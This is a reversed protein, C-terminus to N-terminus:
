ALMSICKPIVVIALFNTALLKRRCATHSAIRPACCAVQLACRHSPRKPPRDRPQRHYNRGPDDQLLRDRCMTQAPAAEVVAATLRRRASISAARIAVGAGALMHGLLRVPAVAGVISVGLRHDMSRVFQARPIAVASNTSSNTDAASTPPRPRSNKEAGLDQLYPLTGCENELNLTLDM